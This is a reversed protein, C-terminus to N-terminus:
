GSGSSDLGCKGLIWELIKWDIGLNESNNSAKANESWFRYANTM